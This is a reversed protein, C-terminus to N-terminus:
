EDYSIMMMVNYWLMCCYWGNEKRANRVRKNRNRGNRNGGLPRVWRRLRPSLWPSVLSSFSFCIDQPHMLRVYYYFFYEVHHTIVAASSLLLPLMYRYCCPARIYTHALNVSVFQSSLVRVGISMAGGGRAPNNLVFVCMMRTPVFM